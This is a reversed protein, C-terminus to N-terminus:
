KIVIDMIIKQFDCLIPPYIECYYLQSMAIYIRRSITKARFNYVPKTLSIRTRLKTCSFM